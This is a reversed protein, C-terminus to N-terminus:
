QGDGAIWSKEMGYRLVAGASEFPRAEESVVPRVTASAKTKGKKGGKPRVPRVNELWADLLFEMELLCEYCERESFGPIRSTTKGTKKPASDSAATKRPM